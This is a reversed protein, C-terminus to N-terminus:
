AKIGKREKFKDRLRMLDEESSVSAAQHEAKITRVCDRLAQSNVPGQQRQFIGTIHSMEESSLDTLVGLSGDRGQDHRQRLQLYM